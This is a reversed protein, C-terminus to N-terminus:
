GSLRLVNPANAVDVARAFSHRGCLSSSSCVAILVFGHGTSQPHRLICSCGFHNTDKKIGVGVVFLTALFLCAGDCLRTSSNAQLEM